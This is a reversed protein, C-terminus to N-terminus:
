RSSLADLSILKVAALYPLCQSPLTGGSCQGVDDEPHPVLALARSLLLTTDDVLIGLRRAILGMVSELCLATSVCAM